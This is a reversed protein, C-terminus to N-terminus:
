HGITAAAPPGETLIPDREPQHSTGNSTSQGTFRYGVSSVTHLYRPQGPDPEIKLRLNRVHSKLMRGNHVGAYGWVLQVLDAHRVVHGDRLTLARLLRFEMNTLHVERGDIRAVNMRSDLEFDGVRMRRTRADGNPQYARRLVAEIRAVLQEPSFPKTVYDDAGFNFGRVITADDKVASLMVIPTLSSARVQRCVDWGDVRPINLDLVILSPSERRWMRLATVGDHATLVEFGARRLVYELIHSLDQEDEVLLIPM